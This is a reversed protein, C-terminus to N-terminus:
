TKTAYQALQEPVKSPDSLISTKVSLERLSSMVVIYISLSSLYCLSVYHIKEQGPRLAPLNCHQEFWNLVTQCLAESSAM